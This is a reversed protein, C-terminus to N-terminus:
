VILVLGSQAAHVRRKMGGVIWDNAGVHDRSAETHAAISDEVPGSTSLNWADFDALGIPERQCSERVEKTM